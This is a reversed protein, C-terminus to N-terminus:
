KREERNTTVSPSTEPRPEQGQWDDVCGVGPFSVVPM